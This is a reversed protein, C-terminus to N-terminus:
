VQGGALCPVECVRSEGMKNVISVCFVLGDPNGVMFSNKVTLHGGDVFEVEGIRLMQIHSFRGMLNFRWVIFAGTRFDNFM